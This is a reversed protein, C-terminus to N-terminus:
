TRLVSHLIFVMAPISLADALTSTCPEAASLKEREVHFQIPWQKAANLLPINVASAAKRVTFDNSTDDKLSLCEPLEASVIGCLLLCVAAPFLLRALISRHMLM